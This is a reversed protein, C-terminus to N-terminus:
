MKWGILVRSNFNIMRPWDAPSNQSQRLLNVLCYGCLIPSYVCIAKNYVTYLNVMKAGGGM